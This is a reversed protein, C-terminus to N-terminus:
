LEIKSRRTHGQRLAGPAGSKPQCKLHRRIGADLECANLNGVYGRLVRAAAYCCIRVCKLLSTSALRLSEPRVHRSPTRQITVPRDLASSTNLGGQGARRSNRM